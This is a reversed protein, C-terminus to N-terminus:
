FSTLQNRRFVNSADVLSTSTVDYRVTISLTPTQIFRIEVQQQMSNEETLCVCQENSSEREYNDQIV